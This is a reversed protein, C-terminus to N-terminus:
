AAAPRIKDAILGKVREVLGELPVVTAKKEARWKLEVSSKEITRPSVTIRLPMGLLDADNFKVGPSELRDDFLVSIGAAELDAYLKEAPGAVAPNDLYLGCLYVHYPAISMPWIIGKDDHNQEIAAPLMRTVGMGYCGMIIIQQAGREDTFHAGLKESYLTGLKFIHGVEIGRMAKLPTGCKACVDGAAARAIDAVIDAQFDRPYNVNRIHTDPKNGGAVLNAASTVSDDAIVKVGQLGVPSAAGPVIGKEIVEGETALRLERVKLANTLKIENVQLDGRIVVFVFQGDAVYFVAKLTQRQPIRLFSAVEEISKMGPTAVEEVPLPEAPYSGKAFVAKETNAAYGCKPCTVVTDEGTEAPVMFEHSEKGGIAGSDAEVMIADMGCRAYTNRYAQMMKLYAADLGAQGRDFTYADKMIFERVRVLGARPRPEDRFKTQIHYLNTPLDRYSWVHHVVLDTVSEEHTPALVLTRDRRDTVHFLTKGMAQERGSKQWMEVPQLAPMLVEQGGAADMEERIITQMKKMVSWALPLYSYVGATLQQVMGAKVLLQHAPTDAESPVERQTKGFLRTIRM